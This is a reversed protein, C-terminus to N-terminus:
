EEWMITADPNFATTQATVFIAIGNNQTAPFILEKGPAAVWRFSARMNLGVGMLITGITGGGTNGAYWKAESTGDIPDIKNGDQTVTGGTPLATIRAISFRSANDAPTISSGLLFEFIRGRSIPSAATHAVGLFCAAATVTGNQIQGSYNRGM